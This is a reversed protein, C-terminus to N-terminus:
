FNLPPIQISIKAYNLPAVFIAYSQTTQLNRSKFNLKRGNFERSERM